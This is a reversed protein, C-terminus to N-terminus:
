QASWALPKLEGSGLSRQKGDSMGIVELQGTADVDGCRMMEGDLEAVRDRLWHRRNFADISQRLLDADYGAMCDLVAALVAGALTPLTIDVSASNLDVVGRAWSHSTDDLSFGDPLMMNVGIGAVVRFGGEAAQSSEVLIGGLKRDQWVIDNPWKLMAEGLGLSELARAVAVGLALTLSAPQEPQRAYTYAVSLCLGSGPPSHWQRGQRGRGATQHLALVAHARNPSPAPQAMLWTNTSGLEAFVTIECPTHSAEAAHALTERIQESNM